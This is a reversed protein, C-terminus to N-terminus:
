IQTSTAFVSTVLPGETVTGFHSLVLNIIFFVNTAENAGFNFYVDHDLM